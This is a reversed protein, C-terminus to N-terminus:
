AETDSLEKFDDINYRIRHKQAARRARPTISAIANRWTGQLEKQQAPKLHSILVQMVEHLRPVKSLELRLGFVPVASIEPNNGLATMAKIYSLTPDEKITADIIAQNAGPEKETEVLHFLLPTIKGVENIGKPREDPPLLSRPRIEYDAPGKVDFYTKSQKPVAPQRRALAARLVVDREESSIGMEDAAVEVQMHPTGAWDSIARSRFELEEAIDRQSRSLSEFTPEIYM